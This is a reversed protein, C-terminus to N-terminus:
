RAALIKCTARLVMEGVTDPIAPELRPTDSGSWIVKGNKDYEHRTQVGMVKAECDVVQLSIAEAWERKAEKPPVAKTWVLWQSGRKVEAGVRLYVKTGDTSEAIRIWEDAYAGACAVLAAVAVLNRM